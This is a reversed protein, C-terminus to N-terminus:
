ALYFTIDNFDGDFSANSGQVLDEFGYYGDGFSLFQTARNPNAAMISFLATEGTQPGETLLIAGFYTNSKVSVDISAQKDVGNLSVLPSILKDLAAARYLNSSSAEILGADTAIAGTITDVEFFGLRASNAGTGEIWVNLLADSVSSWLGSTFTQMGGNPSDVLEDTKSIQRASYQGQISAGEQLDLLGKIDADTSFDVVFSSGELSDNISRAAMCTYGQRVTHVLFVEHIRM